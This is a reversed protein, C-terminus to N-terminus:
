SYILHNLFEIVHISIPIQILSDLISQFSSSQRQLNKFFELLCPLLAVSLLSCRKRSRTAANLLVWRKSEESDALKGVICGEVPVACFRSGASGSCVSELRIANGRPGAGSQRLRGALAKHVTEHLHGRCKRELDSIHM